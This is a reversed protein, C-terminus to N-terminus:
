AAQGATRGIEEAVAAVFSRVAGAEPAPGGDRAALAAVVPAADGVRGIAWAGAEPKSSWQGERAFRLARCANLVANDGERAGPRRAV